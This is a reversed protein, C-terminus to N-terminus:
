SLSFIQTRDTFIRTSGHGCNEKRRQHSCKGPPHSRTSLVAVHKPPKLQGFIPLGSILVIIPFRAARLLALRRRLALATRWTPVMRQSRPGHVQRTCPRHRPARLTSRHQLTRCARPFALTRLAPKFQMRALLARIEIGAAAELAHLRDFLPDRFLIRAIVTRHVLNAHRAFLFRGCRRTQLGVIRPRRKLIQKLLLVTPMLGECLFDRVVCPVPTRASSDSRPCGFAATGVDNM